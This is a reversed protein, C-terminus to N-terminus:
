LKISLGISVSQGPNYRRTTQEREYEIGDAKVHHPFQKYVIDESLIDRVSARLEVRRGLKKSLNFDLSHRPIEYSDPIMMNPDPNTGTTRGLGVIRRGVRNYLLALDLGWRPSNYYLGTNIIYPSQGQMPRDPESVVEGPAFRVNSEIWAANLVLSFNRMGIFGLNKRVDLEFGWSVAEKANEYLYRLTGGMDIFTWEIPNEFHKYFVGLSVTEGAAPYFEYRLDVNDIRATKLDPNGGIESFLDFDYYIAPSLERLEPRNVSRGWAARLQHRDNFKWTLNVSPLLDLDAVRTTDLVQNTASVSRDYTLHTTHSELRAGAYINLRGLPIDFAMYAAGYRVDASYASNKAGPMEYAYVRDFGTYRDDLLEEVPLYFWDHREEYNDWHDLRYGFQRPLYERTRIEGYVGTRLAPRLSGLRFPRKYDVAASINHDDLEQFYRQLRNIDLPLEEDGRGGQYEIQRRDPEDRNAYSYGASWTLTGQNRFDHTGSFQGTYTLRSNYLMETQRQSYEGSNLSVGTRETLRNRGLLNFLNKFEIRNANNLTFAWNHMAGIRVDNSYQNDTYDNLYTSRDEQYDYIGYRANKIGETTKYTHSYNIATINGVVKGRRTEFRRALTLTLRQDPLPTINKIRWDTNFGTKTLRTIEAPDTVTGLHAPFNKPLPRKGADFGLFDTGSGPNIRFDIFQTNLNFGTQYGIETRNEDPVGKTVIQVFGGSFDGPIEPAPSKYVLLNDIQSGPVLDFSFARSDTETSPVALGNIWANNYRQSLGRVIIFRDDIITIGPVRRVVESATRDPSRAIQAASIGSVVQRALKVTGVMANETDSRLKGRVVVEGIATADSELRFDFGAVNQEVACVVLAGKYSLFGAEVTYSGRPVNTLTYNGNVDAAAGKSLEAILVTAGIVPEGTAADRVTGSITFVPDAARSTFVVFFLPIVPFFLFKLRTKM